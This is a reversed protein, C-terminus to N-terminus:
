KLILNLQKISKSYFHPIAFVLFPPFVASSVIILMEFLQIENPFISYKVVIFVGLYLCGLVYFILFLEIENKPFCLWILLMPVCLLSTYYIATKIKYLLFQKSNLNYNWVFYENEPKLYYSISVIFLGLLAAIGLNPNEVTGAIYVLYYLIPYIWLKTRFGRKFEFLKKSFPAPITFSSVKHFKMFVCFLAIVFLVIANLLFGKYVLFAVFPLVAITNEILRLKLYDKFVQKLFDNKLKESLKMVYTIAIASYIYNATDLKAFLMNSFVLFVILILGYAMFPVLGFEVFKRNLMKYQLVFYDKM